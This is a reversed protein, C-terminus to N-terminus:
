LINKRIIIIYQIFSKKDPALRNHSQLNRMTVDVDPLDYIHKRIIITKADLKVDLIPSALNSAM